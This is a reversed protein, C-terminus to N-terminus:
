TPWVHGRGGRPRRAGRRRPRPRHRPRRPPHHGRRARGGAPHQRPRAPGRPHRAAAPQGAPAPRHHARRPHLVRRHPQLRAPGGAPHAPGRRGVAHARRPRPGPLRPRGAAPLRAPRPDRSVLDRGIEAERRDLQLGAFFGSAKDVAQAALEHLGLTASACRAAGGPQPARRPLRPCAEDSMPAECSASTWTRRPQRRKRRRIKCAPATATRAGATSPTTALVPAPRARPLRHRLEPLRAPHVPHHLPRRAQTSRRTVKLVGKGHELAQGCASPAARGRPGPRGAGHGM